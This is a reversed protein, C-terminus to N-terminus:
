GEMQDVDISEEKVGDMDLTTVSAQIGAEWDKVGATNRYLIEIERMTAMYLIMFYDELWFSEDNDDLVDGQYFNGIVEITYDGDAPPMFFIGKSVSYGSAMVDMMGGIGGTLGDADTVLRLIAPSYYVPRDQDMESALGTYAEELSKNDVGRLESQTAKTMPLRVIDGDDNSGVCWVEHISRCKPFTTLFDGASVDKFVRGVGGPIDTLRDLYKQGANILVDVGNDTGDANVLDYRGSHKRFFQRFTLLNM